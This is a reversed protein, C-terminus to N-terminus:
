HPAGTWGAPRLGPASSGRRSGAAWRCPSQMTTSSGCGSRACSGRGHQGISFRDALEVAKRRGVEIVIEQSGALRNHQAAQNGAPGGHLGAAGAGGAGVGVQATEVAVGAHNRHQAGALNAAAEEVVLIQAAKVERGYACAEVVHEIFQRAVAAVRGRGRDVDAGGRHLGRQGAVAFFIREVKPRAVREHADPDAVLGADGGMVVQRVVQGAGGGAAAAEGQERWVLQLVQVNPREVERWCALWDAQHVQVLRVQAPERAKGFRHAMRKTSFQLRAIGDENGAHPPVMHFRQFIEIHQDVVPPALRGLVHIRGGVRQHQGQERDALQRWVLSACPLLQEAVAAWM